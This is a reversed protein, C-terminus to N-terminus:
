ARNYAGHKPTKTNSLTKSIDHSLLHAVHEFRKSSLLQRSPKLGSLYNYREITYSCTGKSKHSKRLALRLVYDCIETEPPQKFINLSRKQTKSRLAEDRIFIRAELPHEFLAIKEIKLGDTTLNNAIKHLTRSDPPSKVTEFTFTTSISKDDPSM